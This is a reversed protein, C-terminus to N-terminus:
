RSLVKAVGFYNDGLINADKQRTLGNKNKIHITAVSAPVPVPDDDSRFTAHAAIQKAREQLIDALDTISGLTSTRKQLLHLIEDCTRKGGYNIAGASKESAEKALNALDNDEFHLFLHQALALIMFNIKRKMACDLGEHDPPLLRGVEESAFLLESEQQQAVLINESLTEIRSSLGPGRFLRVFGNMTMLKHRQSQLEDECMQKQMRIENLQKKFNAKKQKKGQEFARMAKQYVREERQQKLYEAFRELKNFCHLGLRRLQYFAIVNHVWEPDLLLNELHDLKQQVRATAGEHTKIRDHLQYKEERLAAFEKKLEARNRFLDVLKDNDKDQPTEPASKFLGALSTM